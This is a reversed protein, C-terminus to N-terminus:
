EDTLSSTTSIGPLGPVDRPISQSRAMPPFYLHHSDGSHFSQSAVPLDCAFQASLDEDETYFEPDWCILAYSSPDGLSQVNVDALTHGSGDLNDM